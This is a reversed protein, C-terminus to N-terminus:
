MGTADRRYESPTKGTERRFAANFVSKSNFGVSLLIDLLSDQCSPDALKRQAAAIRHGAVYEHYNRGFVGNIAQSVNNTSTGVADALRPLTLGSDLYLQDQRMAREVKDAIRQLDEPALASRAYKGRAPALIAAVMTGPAPLLADPRALGLLGLAYLAVGYGVAAMGEVIDALRADVLGALLSLLYGLWCTAAIALLGRLWVLRSGLLPDDRGARRTVGLAFWLATGQLILSQLYLLLALTFPLLGTAAAVMDADRAVKLRMTGPTALYCCAIALGIAPAILWRRQRAGFRWAAGTVLADVHLRLLVGVIPLALMGIGTWGPHRDYIGLRLLLEDLSLLMVAGVLGALFGNAATRLERRVCFLALLFLGQGLGILLLGAVLDMVRLIGGIRPPSMGHHRAM